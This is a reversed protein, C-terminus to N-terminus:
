ELYKMYISDCFIHDKTDLKKCKTFHKWSEGMYYCTDTDGEKKHGFLIGNFAYTM